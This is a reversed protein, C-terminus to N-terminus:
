TLLIFFNISYSMQWTIRVLSQNIRNGMTIGAMCSFSDISYQYKLTKKISINRGPIYNITNSAYYIKFNVPTSSLEPFWAVLPIDDRPTILLCMIPHSYMGLCGQNTSAIRADEKM